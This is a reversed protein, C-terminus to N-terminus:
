RRLSPLTIQASTLLVRTGAFPSAGPNKAVTTTSTVSALSRFLVQAVALSIQGLSLPYTLGATPTPMNGRTREVPRLFMIPNKVIIWFGGRGRIRQEQFPNM